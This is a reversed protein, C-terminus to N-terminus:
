PKPEYALETNTLAFFLNQLQHVYQIPYKWKEGFVYIGEDDKWLKVMLGDSQKLKLLWEETLPIPKISCSSITQWVDNVLVCKEEIGKIRIFTLVKEKKLHYYKVFNGIRLENAKM